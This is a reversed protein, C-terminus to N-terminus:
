RKNRVFSAAHPTIAIPARSKGPDNALRGGAGDIGQSGINASGTQRAIFGTLHRALAEFELEAPEAVGRCPVLGVL